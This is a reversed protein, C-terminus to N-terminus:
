QHIFFSDVPIDGKDGQLFSDVPINGEAGSVRLLRLIHSHALAYHKANEYQVKHVTAELCHGGDEHRSKSESLSIGPGFSDVLIQLQRSTCEFTLDILTEKQSYIMRPYTNTYAISDFVQAGNKNKKFYKTLAAPMKQRSPETLEGNRDQVAHIRVSIMRDVRLHSPNEHGKHTAVLYYSGNNWLLAFPNLIYPSGDNNAKFTIRGNKDNIDYSGYVVEIQKRRSIADYIIQTNRLMVSSAGPIKNDTSSKPREPLAGVDVPFLRRSEDLIGPSAGYLPQLAELRSLLYVKEDESLFRSSNVAGYVLDMDSLSLLPDFYYRRQSGKGTNNRGTYIGDAERSKIVGGFTMAFITNLTDILDEETGSLKIIEDLKNGTTKPNFFSENGDPNPILLALKEAIAPCSLAHDRDTSTKLVYYILPIEFQKLLKRMDNYAPMSTTKVAPRNKESNM